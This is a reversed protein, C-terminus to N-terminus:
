HHSFDINFFVKVKGLFIKESVRMGQFIFFCCFRNGQLKKHNSERMDTLRCIFGGAGVPEFNNLSFLSLHLYVNLYLIIM